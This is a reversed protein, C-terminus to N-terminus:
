EEGDAVLFAGLNGADVQEIFTQWMYIVAANFFCETLGEACVFRSAQQSSVGTWVSTEKMKEGSSSQLAICLMSPASYETGVSVAVYVLCEDTMRIVPM